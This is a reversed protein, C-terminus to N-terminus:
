LLNINFKFKIIKIKNFKFFEYLNFFNIDFIYSMYFINLYINMWNQCNIINLFLIIVIDWTIKSKPINCVKWFKTHKKTCIYEILVTQDYYKCIYHVM